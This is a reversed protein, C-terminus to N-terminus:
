AKDPMDRAYRSHRSRQRSVKVDLARHKPTEANSLNDAGIQGQFFGWNSFVFGDSGAALKFVLEVNESFIEEFRPKWSM